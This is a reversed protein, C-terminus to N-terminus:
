LRWWRPTISVATISGSWTVTNAGPEIQPFTLGGYEILNNREVIHGGTNIEYAEMIDCDIYIPNTAGASITITYDGVSLTGNGTVKILPRSAVLEPNTITAGSASIVVETEGSTLWRQPKCNFRIEFQGAQGIGAPNVELGSLYAAIRYEGANYEDTLRQYGVQSVIANRFAAFNAAFTAQDPAFSGAPYTVEINNWHGNDLILAGNRGPVNVLEVDREPANYVAAGTIYIGYDRSDVGGFQLSKYIAGTKIIAM